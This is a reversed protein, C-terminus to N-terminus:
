ASLTAHFVGLIIFVLDPYSDQHSIFAVIKTTKMFLLMAQLKEVINKEM